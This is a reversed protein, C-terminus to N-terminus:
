SGPEKEVLDFSLQHRHNAVEGGVHPNTTEISLQHKHLYRLVGKAVAAFLVLRDTRGRDGPLSDEPYALGWEEQMAKEIMDTMSDGLDFASGAKLTTM